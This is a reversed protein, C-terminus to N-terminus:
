ENGSSLTVKTAQDRFEIPILNLEQAYHRRGKHDTYKYVFIEETNSPASPNAQAVALKSHIDSPENLNAPASEDIWAQSGDDFGDQNKIRFGQIVSAVSEIFLPHRILAATNGARVLNMVEKDQILKDISPNDQISGMVVCLRRICPRLSERFLVPDAVAEEQLFGMEGLKERLSNDYIMRQFSLQNIAGFTDSVQVLIWFSPDQIVGRVSEYAMLEGLQDKTDTPRVALRAAMKSAVCAQDLAMSIGIETFNGSMETIFSDEIPPLGKVVGARQGQALYHGFIGVLLLLLLGRVAGFTGGFFRDSTSRDEDDERRDREARTILMSSISLTIYTIAFALGGGLPIALVGLLATRNEFLPAFNPGMGIAVGYSALMTFLALGSALAGRMAGAAILGLLLLICTLDFWM